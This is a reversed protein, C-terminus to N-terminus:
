HPQEHLVEQRPLPTGAHFIDSLLIKPSLERLSEDEGFEYLQLTGRDFVIIRDEWDVFQLAPDKLDVSM